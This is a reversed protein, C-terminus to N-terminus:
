KAVLWVIIAVFGVIILAAVGFGILMNRIARDISQRMDSFGITVESRVGTIAEQMDDRVDNIHQRMETRVNSVEAVTSQITAVMRATASDNTSVNRRREGQRKDNPITESAPPTLRDVTDLGRITAVIKRLETTIHPPTEDGFKAAQIELARLRAKHAELLESNYNENNYQDTM